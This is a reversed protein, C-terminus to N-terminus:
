EVLERVEEWTINRFGTIRKALSTANYLEAKSNSALHELIRVGISLKIRKRRLLEETLPVEKSYRGIEHGFDMGALIVRRCGLAECMIVARDGDTFGGFNHLCAFPKVQTTGIILGRLMPVLSIIKDMNDGHAHVVMVSGEDSAKLLCWSPGDLDSVVVHPIIGLNLLAATAGDAAVVGVKRERLIQKSKELDEELSPGAGYIIVARFKNLINKLTELKASRNCIINALIQASRRDEEESLNLMKRVYNYFESNM